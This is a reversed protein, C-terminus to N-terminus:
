SSYHELVDHLPSRYLWGQLFFSSLGCFCKRRNSHPSSRWNAYVVQVSSSYLTAMFLSNFLYTIRVFSTRGFLLIVNTFLFVLFLSSMKILIGLSDSPSSCVLPSDSPWYKAVTYLMQRWSAGSWSPASTAPAHFESPFHLFIYISLCHIGTYFPTVLIHGSYYTYMHYHTFHHLAPSMTLFAQCLLIPSM